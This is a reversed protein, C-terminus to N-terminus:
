LQLREALPLLRWCYPADHPFAPAPRCPEPVVGLSKAGLGSVGLMDAPHVPAAAEQRSLRTAADVHLSLVREFRQQRRLELADVHWLRGTGSSMCATLGTALVASILM